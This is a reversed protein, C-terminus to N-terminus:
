DIPAGMETSIAQAMDETRSKYVEALKEMLAIREEPATAMWGPLAAKAAAVAADVDKAGGLSIVTCPEETSPNIVKHESGELPAVWKGNIYFDRKEIM